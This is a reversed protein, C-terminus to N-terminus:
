RTCGSCREAEPMARLKETEIPAGCVACLGYGETALRSLARRIRTLAAADADPLGALDGPSVAGAAASAPAEQPAPM